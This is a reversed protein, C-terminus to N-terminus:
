QGTTSAFFFFFDRLLSLQAGGKRRLQHEGTVAANLGPCSENKVPCEQQNRVRTSLSFKDRDGSGSVAACTLDSSATQRKIPTIQRREGATHSFATVGM